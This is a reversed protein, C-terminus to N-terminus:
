QETVTRQYTKRFVDVSGLTNFRGASESSGATWGVAWTRSELSPGQVATPARVVMASVLM